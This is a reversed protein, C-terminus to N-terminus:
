AAGDLLSEVVHLALLEPPERADLVLVEAPELADPEEFRAAAHRFVVLDADSVATADHARVALREEVVAEPAVVHLVRAPLSRESALALFRARWSAVPFTADVIVSRGADLHAAAQSCLVDYTRATWESTYPGTDVSGRWRETPELGFLRKRLVDSSLVVGGLAREVSHAITSKGTGPLGCLVLLAPPQVLYGAALALYRASEARAANRDDGGASVMRLAAVKARVLARHVKFLPLVRRLSTDGSAHAYRHALYSGFARFGRADLDMVLFALDAAVDGCRFAPEFEICDYAVVRDRLFCVNGAHLDGHGDRARGERVREALLESSEDLMTAVRHTLTAVLKPGLEAPCEALNGLVVRRVAEPAAHPDVDPGTAAQAHFRVLVDVLRDLPENSIEGVALLRDMMRDGPLREMEVAYDVTTGVGDIRLRGSPTRELTVVGRYVGPALRSNLRVEEACFHRRREITSYDLFSFRVPKKVKYVRAGALFVWSIHTERLEVGRVPFPYAEPRTLADPLEDLPM